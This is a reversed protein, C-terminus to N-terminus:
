CVRECPLSRIVTYHNYVYNPIKVDYRYKSEVISNPIVSILIDILINLKSYVFFTIKYWIYKVDFFSSKIM